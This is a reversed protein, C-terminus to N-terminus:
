ACRQRQVFDSVSEARQDVLRRSPRTPVATLITGCAEVDYFTRTRVGAENRHEIAPQCHVRITHVSRNFMVALTYRDVYLRGEQMFGEYRRNRVETM